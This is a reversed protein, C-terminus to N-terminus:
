RRGAGAPRAPGVRRLLEMPPLVPGPPGEAGPVGPQAGMAAAPGGGAPLGPAAGPGMPIAGGGPPSMRRAQLQLLANVIDQLPREEAFMKYAVLRDALPTTELKMGLLISERLEDAGLRAMEAPVDDIAPDNELYTELSITRAQRKELMLVSHTPADLGSSTGYSVFNSYDGRILAKPTYTLRYRKGRALGVVTKRQNCWAEDQALAVENAYRKAVAFSRQHGRTSSALKGQAKTLFAATAKNLDVEGGRSRPNNMGERAQDELRDMIQFAQFSPIEPGVPDMKADPGLAFYRTGPGRDTPNKVNWVLKGGYVMEVFYDILLRMYRNETRVVGKSDDLQGLPEKAWSPRHALQVPCLGTENDKLALLEAEYGLDSEFYAIRAIYEGSYWELTTMEAPPGAVETLKKLDHGYRRVREDTLPADVRLMLAAIQEPYERQLRATSESFCLLARETPQDPQYNPDPLVFDPDIRRFRPFLGGEARARSYRPWIKIATLGCAIMDMGFFEPYNFIGSGQTLGNIVQEVDEANAEGRAGEAYRREIPLQEAFMRGGDEITDRFFNAVMPLNTDDVDRTFVSGWDGSALARIDARRQAWGQWRDRWSRYCAVIEDTLAKTDVVGSEGL